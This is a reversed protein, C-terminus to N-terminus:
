SYLQIVDFTSAKLLMNKVNSCRRLFIHQFIYALKSEECKKGQYGPNCGESCNGNVHNCIGTKCNVSCNEKCGVGYTEALCEIM